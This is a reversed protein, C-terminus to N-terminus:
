KTLGSLINTVTNNVNSNTSSTGNNNATNTVSSWDTGGLLSIINDVNSTTVTQSSGKIIGNAFDKYFDKNTLNGKVTQYNSALSALTLLTSANSFDIKGNQKYQTLLTRLASGVNQGATYYTSNTATSSFSSCSAFLMMAAMVLAALGLKNKM